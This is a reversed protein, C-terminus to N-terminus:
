NNMTLLALEDKSMKININGVENKNDKLHKSPPFARLPQKIKKPDYLIKETQQDKRLFNEKYIKSYYNYVKEGEENNEEAKKINNWESKPFYIYMPMTRMLGDIDQKSLYPKPMNMVSSSTTHVTIHDKDLWGNKVAIKQLVTGRYPTFISVTITDHGSIKKVLEVTEMVLDRTEGPFGIILNVSFAIGSEAIGRFSNIIELNTPKRLLVKQRFDPNGCEVGFSIRYSGVKKLRKLFEPKCNEPRTNFWFPIKFEEYMDCFDFIEKRPRALFSDDVFYLFKPDYLKIIEVIEKRINAITKRRLFSTSNTEEKIQAMHMPSNCFTCQYPCGRYTEIPITKFIEGGMPRFFRKPDFLSYDPVSKNIDCLENRPNKIIKLNKDKYYTGRLNKLNEGKRAAEAVELLTIEGEGVAIFNIQKKNITYEPDASPLVGGSIKVCNYDKIADMMGLAKTFADEVISYVILDPKHEFVKKRYDSNLDKKITIGLDGEDSFDRAQLYLTRNQPSSSIEPSVYSTTDFLDVKYGSKKFLNTFIAISLPPVLMLPLNPYVLLIKFDKKNKIM